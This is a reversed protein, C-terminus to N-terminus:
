EVIKEVVQIKVGNGPTLAITNGGNDVALIEYVGTFLTDFTIQFSFKGSAAVDIDGTIPGLIEAADEPLEKASFTFVWGSIDVVVGDKTIQYPLTLVNDLVVLLESFATCSM